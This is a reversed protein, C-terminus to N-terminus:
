LLMSIFIMSVGIVGGALLLVVTPLIVFSLLPHKQMLKEMVLANDSLTSLKPKANVTAVTTGIVAVALIIYISRKM